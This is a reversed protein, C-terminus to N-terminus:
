SQNFASNITQDWDWFLHLLQSNNDHTNPALFTYMEVADHYM